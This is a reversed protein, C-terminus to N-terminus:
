DATQVRNTEPILIIVYQLDNFNVAPIVEAEANLNNVIKIQGSLTGIFLGGPTSHRPLGTQDSVGSESNRCLGSTYVAADSKYKKFLPLYAIKIYPLDNKITGGKLIGAAKSDGIIVSLNCTRSIITQVQSSHKTVETIRGLVAFSHKRNDSQKETKCLVIAGDTIGADSGKNISLNEYWFAPDRLYIEAFICKYGPTPTIKLLEEVRKKDNKISNLLEIKIQLKENEKKLLSIGKILEDKTQQQFPKEAAKDKLQLASGIFPHFFASTTKYITSWFLQFVIVASILAASVALAIITKRKM